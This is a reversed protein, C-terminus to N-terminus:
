TERGAVREWRAIWRRIPATHATALRDAPQGAHPALDNLLAIGAWAYFPAMGGLPGAVARYGRRWGAELLRSLLRLATATPGPEHPAFRLITLTRALDARRDGVHVNAWDILGTVQDAAVLLNLPHYDFHLISPPDTAVTRLRAGLPGAGAGAWDIWSREEALLFPPAPAAHLRAQTAGFLRALAQFRRPDARLADLLTHGACWHLLLAPRGAWEGTAQVAPIPVGPVTERMIAAERRAIHAQEPRFVRLVYTADGREIRWIATDRGGTVRTIATVGAGYGLAALIARPDLEPQAM